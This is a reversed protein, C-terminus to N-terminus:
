AQLKWVTLNEHVKNHKHNGSKTLNEYVENHKHNGSKTLIDRVKDHKYNGFKTLNEHTGGCRTTEPSPQIKM